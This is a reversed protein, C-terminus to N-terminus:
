ASRQDAAQAQDRAALDLRHELVFPRLEAFGRAVLFVFMAGVVFMIGLMQAVAETHLRVAALVAVAKAADNSSALPQLPLREMTFIAVGVGAMGIAMVALTYRLSRLKGELHRERRMAGYGLFAAVVAGAFLGHVFNPIMAGSVSRAGAGEM